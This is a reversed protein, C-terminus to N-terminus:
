GKRKSKNKISEYIEMIKEKYKDILSDSEEIGMGGSTNSLQKDDIEKRDKM